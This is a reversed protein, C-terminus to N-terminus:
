CGRETQCPTPKPTPPPHRWQQSRPCQGAAPSRCGQREPLGPLSPRAPPPGHHGCRKHQHHHKQRNQSHLPAQSPEVCRDRQCDACGNGEGGDISTRVTEAEDVIVQMEVGPPFRPTIEELAEQVAQRVQLANSGDRQYVAVSVTRNGELNTAISEYSESGLSVRGVDKLLTVGGDSSRGVVLAEFDEVSRLRGEMRLPLVMVQDSPTPADGIQGLAALVNQQELAQRIEVITLQRQELRVPDLWLRFALPSAGFFGVDGVGPVRRLRDRVVRDVWGSLFTDRYTEADASFSLVLLLDDSSRQV